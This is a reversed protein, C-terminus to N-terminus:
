KLVVSLEEKTPKIVRAFPYTLTGAINKTATWITNRWNKEGNVLPIKNIISNAGFQIMDKVLWPSAAVKGFFGKGAFRNKVDTGLQDFEDFLWGNFVNFISAWTDQVLKGLNGFTAGYLWRTVRNSWWAPTSNQNTNNNQNPKEM